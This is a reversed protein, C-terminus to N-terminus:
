DRHHHENRSHGATDSNEQEGPEPRHHKRDEEHRLEDQSEDREAPNEHHGM